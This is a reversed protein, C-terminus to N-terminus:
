FKNVLIVMWLRETYLGEPEVAKINFVAKELTVVLVWFSVGLMVVKCLQLYRLCLGVFLLCGWLGGLASRTEWFVTIPM